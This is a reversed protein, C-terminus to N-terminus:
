AGAIQKIIFLIIGYIVSSSIGFVLVPGAISFIKAGLGMVFGESRFEIASAVVSNAFGTIPVVIGAGAHKAINDYIKLITLLAAILILSIAVLTRADKIDFGNKIYLQCLFEGFTCIAGGFIFAKLCNVAPKSNPSEIKVMEAYQEKSTVKM